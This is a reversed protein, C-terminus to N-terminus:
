RLTQVEVVEGGSTPARTASDNRGVFVATVLLLSYHTLRRSRPRRGNANSDQKTKRTSAAGTPHPATVRSSREPIMSSLKVPCHGFVESSELTIEDWVSGSAKFRM